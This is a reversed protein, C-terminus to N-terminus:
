GASKCWILDLYPKFMWENIHTHMEILWIYSKIALKKRHVFRAWGYFVQTWVTNTRCRFCNALKYIVGSSSLSCSSSSCSCCKLLLYLFLISSFLFFLVLFPFYFLLLLCLLSSCTAAVSLKQISHEWEWPSKVLWCRQSGHKVNNVHFRCRIM